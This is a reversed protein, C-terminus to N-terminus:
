RKHKAVSKKENDNNDNVIKKKNTRRQNHPPRNRNNTTTHNVNQKFLSKCLSHISDSNFANHNSSQSFPFHVITVLFKYVMKYNAIFRKLRFASAIIQNPQSLHSCLFSHLCFRISLFFCVLPFNWWNGSMRFRFDKYRLHFSHTSGNHTSNRLMNRIPFNSSLAFEM